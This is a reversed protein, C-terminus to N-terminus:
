ARSHIRGSRRSTNRDTTIVTVSLGDDTVDIAVRELTSEFVTRHHGDPDYAMRSEVLGADQLSNLRRYITPRSAGCEEVLARAPKPDSRIAALITRTYDAELLALLDEAPLERETPGTPTSRDLATTRNM